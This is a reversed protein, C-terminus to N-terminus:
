EYILTRVAEAAREIEQETNFQSFSFRVMGQHETGFHKHMLPACHAGARVAIDFREALEDCVQASDYQGLNLSVIAARNTQHLDGYFTLLPEDKLLDYFRAALRQEEVRIRDIGKSELYGLAAHLGAIGHGNLTGSELITPMDPPQAESFSHVGTGGSLLPRIATSKGVCIGGTGQPGLLSKHGTFCIVDIGDRQMDIPFVGASQSADLVFKVGHKRCIGGIAHIDNVNGTVNSCHTCVVAATEPRISEEVQKPSINGRADCPLITLRVGQERLEYLPRLVSNHEMATTIVHDGPHLLGKIATNLAMTSNQMFAIQEPAEAGFLRALQMRTQYIIRSSDLAARHLGRASNGMSHIADSVAEAVCPPKLLSTAASDLYIM